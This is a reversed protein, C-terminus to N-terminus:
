LCPRRPREAGAARHERVQWATCIALLDANVLQFRGYVAVVESRVGLSKLEDALLQEGRNRGAPTLSWGSLTGSNRGVMSARELEVLASDVVSREFGTRRCLDDRRLVGGVRLAHLVASEGHASV